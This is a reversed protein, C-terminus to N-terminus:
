CLDQNCFALSPCATEQPPAESTHYRILWHYSEDHAGFQPEAAHELWTVLSCVKVLNMLHYAQLYEKFKKNLKRDKQHNM